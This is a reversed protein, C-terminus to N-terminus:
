KCLRENIIKLAREVTAEVSMGSNDFLVADEAPIAPSISRNTDNGDRWQMDKRVEELTIDKGKAKLEAYRRAAREDDSASLFIKVDANPLIVTGIDRGDMICSSKAAISRQTDLLFERVEPIKSVESAYVSSIPSRIEEGMREGNLFVVSGGNEFTIELKINKLCNIIGAKDQKDVGSRRVFLGITRYMAGTDIYLLGMKSALKKALTSKGSGGPGDIAINLKKEVPKDSSGFGGTRKAAVSDGFTLGFPLFVGQCFAYGKSLVLDKDGHNTIKIMIHGQNQAYYYDSDIIGVTNDLAVRYKYGLGSRPFLMLVWGENIKVRVGTPIIVSQTSKLELDYPMFFDYGASGATARVPLIVDDLPIKSEEFSVKQFEAIRQM